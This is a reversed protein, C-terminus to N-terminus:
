RDRLHDELGWDLLEGLYSPMDAVSLAVQSRRDPSPVKSWDVEDCAQKRDSPQKLGRGEKTRHDFMVAFSDRVICAQYMLNSPGAYFQACAGNEGNGVNPGCAAFTEFSGM